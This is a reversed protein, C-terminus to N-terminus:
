DSLCDLLYQFTRQALPFSIFFEYQGSEGGVFAKFHEGTLDGLFTDLRKLYHPEVPLNFSGALDAELRGRSLYETQIALYVNPFHSGDITRRSGKLRRNLAHDLKCRM